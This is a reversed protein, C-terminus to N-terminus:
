EGIWLCLEVLRIPSENGLILAKRMLIGRLDEICPDRALERLRLAYAVYNDINNVRYDYAPEQAINGYVRSDWIPYAKPRCFHLTKSAGVISNNVFRKLSNLFDADLSERGIQAWLYDIDRGEFDIGLMTPMWGYSMHAIAVLAARDRPASLRQAAALLDPYVEVVPNTGLRAHEASRLIRDFSLHELNEIFPM